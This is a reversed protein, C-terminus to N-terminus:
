LSPRHAPFRSSKQGRRRREPRPGRLSVGLWSGAQWCQWGPWWPCLWPPMPVPTVMPRPRAMSRPQKPMPMPGLIRHIMSAFSSGALDGGGGASAVAGDQESLRGDVPWGVKMETGKQWFTVKTEHVQTTCVWRGTHQVLITVTQGGIPSLM